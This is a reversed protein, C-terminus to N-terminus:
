GADEPRTRKRHEAKVLHPGKSVQFQIRWLGDGKPVSTTYIGPGVESLEHSSDDKRTAPRGVTALVEARQVPKGDSDQVALYLEDGAWKSSLTWGLEKQHKQRAMEKGYEVGHRYYEVEDLGEFTTTALTVVSLQVTVFLALSLFLGCPWPHLGLREFIRM